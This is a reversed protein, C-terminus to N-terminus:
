AAVETRLAEVKAKAAALQDDLEPNDITALEQGAKVRDGIDVKWDSLYGSTRAFIVTEAFSRADGPLVLLNDAPAPEVHMVNVPIPADASEEAAKRLDAADRDRRHAGLFFAAALALVAFVTSGTFHRFYSSM